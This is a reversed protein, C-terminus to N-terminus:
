RSPHRSGYEQNELVSGIGNRRLLEETTRVLSLPGREMGVVEWFIQYNRSDFGSRQIQPWSSQGSSRMVEPIRVNLFHSFSQSRHMRAFPTQHHGSPRFNTRPWIVVGTRSIISVMQLYIRLQFSILRIAAKRMERLPLRGTVFLQARPPRWCKVNSKRPWLSVCFPTSHLLCVRPADRRTQVFTKNFTYTSPHPECIWCTFHLPLSLM